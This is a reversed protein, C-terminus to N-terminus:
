GRVNPNNVLAKVPGKARLRHPMQARPTRIAATLRRANSLLERVLHEEELYLDIGCSGAPLVEGAGFGTVILKSRPSVKMLRGITACLQGGLLEMSAIVLDPQSERAQRMMAVATDPCSVVQFSPDHALLHEIVRLLSVPKIAILVRVRPGSSKTKAKPVHSGPTPEWRLLERARIMGRIRRGALESHAKTEM